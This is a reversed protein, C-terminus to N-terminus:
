LTISFIYCLNSVKVLLEHNKEKAEKLHCFNYLSEDISFLQGYQIFRRINACARNFLLEIDLKNSIKGRIERFREEKLSTGDGNQSFYSGINNYKTVTNMNLLHYIFLKVEKVTAHKHVYTEHKSLKGKSKIKNDKIVDESENFSTLLAAVIYKDVVSFLICEIVDSESTLNHFMDLNLRAHKSSTNRTQIADFSLAVDHTLTINSFSDETFALIEGDQQESQEALKQKKPTATICTSERNRKNSNDM